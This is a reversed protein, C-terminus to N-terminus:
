VVDCKLVAGAAVFARLDARDVLADHHDILQLEFIVAARPFGIFRIWLLVGLPGFLLLALPTVNMWEYRSCAQFRNFALDYGEPSFWAGTLLGLQTPFRGFAM